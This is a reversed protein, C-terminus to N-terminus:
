VLSSKARDLGSARTSTSIVASQQVVFEPARGIEAHRQVTKLPLTM